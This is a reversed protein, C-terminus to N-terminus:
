PQDTRPPLRTITVDDSEWTYSRTREAELLWQRVVALDSETPHRPYKTAGRAGPNALFVIRRLRGEVELPPSVIGADPYNFESRFGNRAHTGLVVIVAAPSLALVRKLYRPVCEKAAEAVGVENRSKCHVVETLAYDTGPVVDRGMLKIALQKVYRWYPVSKGPRGDASIQRIGDPM